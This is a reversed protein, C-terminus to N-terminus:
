KQLLFYTKEEKVFKLLKAFADEIIPHGCNLYVDKNGVFYLANEPRSLLVTFRHFNDNFGINKGENDCVLSATVIKRQKGQISDVTMVVLQLISDINDKNVERQFIPAFLLNKRLSSKKIRNVHAMYPAIIVNDTVKGDNQIRKRAMDIFMKAIYSAEFQNYRSTGDRQDNIGLDSTDFFFVKGEDYPNFRGAILKDDYCLSSILKVIKPLSRRNTRLMSSKLWNHETVSNFLGKEFWKIYVPNNTRRRLYDLVPLPSPIDSLQASDGIEIFKYKAAMILPLKEYFRGRSAEDCFIIDPYFYELFNSKILFNDITCTVVSGFYGGTKYINGSFDPNSIVSPLKKNLGRVGPSMVSKDNGLRCIKGEPLYRVAEEVLADLGDNSQSVVLINCGRILYNFIAVSTTFTKGTGGPGFIFSIPKSSLMDMLALLQDSDALIKKMSDPIIIEPPYNINQKEPCSLSSYIFDKPRSAPTKFKNPRNFFVELNGAMRSVKRIAIDTYLKISEVKEFQWSELPKSFGITIGQHNIQVVSIYIQYERFGFVVKEGFKDLLIVRDGVNFLPTGVFKDLAVSSLQSFDNTMPVFLSKATKKPKNVLPVSIQKALELWEKQWGLYLDSLELSWLIFNSFELGSISEEHDLVELNPEYINADPINSARKKFRIVKEKRPFDDLLLQDFQLWSGYSYEDYDDLGYIIAINSVFNKKGGFVAVVKADPYREKIKSALTLKENVLLILTPESLSNSEQFRLRIVALSKMGLLHNSFEDSPLANIVIVQKQGM